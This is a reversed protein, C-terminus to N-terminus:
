ETKALKGSANTVKINLEAARKIIAKRTRIGTAGAIEAAYRRPAPSSPCPPPPAPRRSPWLLLRLLAASRPGRPCLAGRAGENGEAVCKRNQMLLMELEAVNNVVFKYFGSPLLHRTKANTGYGAQATPLASLNPLPPM